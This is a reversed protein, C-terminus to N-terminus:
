GIRLPEQEPEGTTPVGKFAMRLLPPAVMTTALSMFVVVSYVAPNIVGFTLGIGAVVM